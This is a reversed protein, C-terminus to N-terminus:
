DSAEKAKRGDGERYEARGERVLREAEAPVVNQRKPWVADTRDITVLPFGFKGTGRASESM